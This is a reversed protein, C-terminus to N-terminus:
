SCNNQSVLCVSESTKSTRLGDLGMQLFCEFVNSRAAVSPVSFKKIVTCTENKEPHYFFNQIVIIVNLHAVQYAVLCCLMVCM